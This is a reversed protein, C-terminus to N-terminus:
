TDPLVSCFGAPAGGDVLADALPTADWTSGSRVHLSTGPSRAAGAHDSLAASM